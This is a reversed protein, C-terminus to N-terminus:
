NRGDDRDQGFSLIDNNRTSVDGATRGNGTDRFLVTPEILVHRLGESSLGKIAQVMEMGLSDNM